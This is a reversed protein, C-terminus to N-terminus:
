QVCLGQNQFRYSDLVKGKKAEIFSFDIYNKGNVSFKGFGWKSAFSMEEFEFDEREVEDIEHGGSGIVMSVLGEGPRVCVGDRAECLRYYVHVHGSVFLDVRHQIFLSELRKQLGLGTRFDKSDSRPAYFPRHGNVIVFPTKCRDVSALDKELWTIQASGVEVDHETSVFVVHVTGHDFSYYFPPFQHGFAPVPLHGQNRDVKVPSFLEGVPFRWYIHLGCEGRSDGEEMNGWDPQFPTLGWPDVSEEETLDYEHNGVGAVWLTRSAFREISDMFSNWIFPNGNGYSIDGVDLMLDPVKHKIESEMAAMVHEAGEYKDGRKGVNVGMDGFIYIDFPTEDGAPKSSTFDFEHDAGPILYKYNTNPVLGTMVVTHFHHQFDFESAKGKCLMDSDATYSMGNAEMLYHHKSLSVGEPSYDVKSPCNGSQTRWTVRMTTPDDTVGLHVEMPKCYHPDKNLYVGWLHSKASFLGASFACVFVLLFAILQRIPWRRPTKVDDELLADKYTLPIPTAQVM